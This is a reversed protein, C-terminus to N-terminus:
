VESSILNANPVIVEAGDFTRVVSSRIGIRRVEGVLTLSTIEVKDGVKVPQEFILILGSVFNNVINQLGFGIGVSLAGFVIALQSAQFGAASAAAMLGVALIFWQTITAVANGIGRKLDLRPLVEVELVFRVFRAIWLALVVAVAFALFRELSMEFQGVRFSWTLVSSAWARAMDAIDFAQLAWLVWTVFAVIKLVLIARATVVDGRERMIRSAQGLQTRPALRIVGAVVRYAIVVALGFYAAYLVGNVLRESLLTFGLVNAIVSIVGAAFLVEAGRWVVRSWSKREMRDPSASRLLWGATATLAIALGLNLIRYEFSRTILLDGLVTIGFLILLARMARHVLADGSRPLLRFLPPLAAIAVLQWLTIPARPYLGSAVFLAVLLAASIPRHLTEAAGTLSKDEPDLEVDIRNRLRVAVVLFLLFLFLNFLLLGAHGSVFASLARLDEDWVWAAAQSSPAAAISGLRWIPPANRSLTRRRVSARAREVESLVLRVGELGTDVRAKVGLVHELQSRQSRRLAQASDLVGRIQNEVAEPVSDEGAVADLTLQWRDRITRTATSADQIEQLEDEFTEIWEQLQDEHSQWFSQLVSLERSSLGELVARGIRENGEAIATLEAPLEEEILAIDPDFSLQMGTAQLRALAERSRLPIESAPVPRPAVAATDQREPPAQVPQGQGFIGQAHGGAPLCLAVAFCALLLARFRVHRGGRFASTRADAGFTANM